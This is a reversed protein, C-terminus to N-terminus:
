NHLIFKIIGKARFYGPAAKAGFLYTRPTFERNPNDKLQQYEDVIRLANLFQRKYEHLRKLHMDFMTNPNLIINERSEIEDVLQHKKAMKKQAFRDLVNKDDAFKTLESLRHLEGRWSITGLLETILGSLEPNCLALWRRPTIGNTENLIKDPYIINYDKLVYDKLIETHLKAVGNIHHSGYSALNAMVISGDLIKVKDIQEWPIEREQLEMILQDNIRVIIDYIEPLLASFLHTNWRELAEPMVTHLTYSCSEGTAKWATDWDVNYDCTLARMLEAVAVAPHTDNMHFAHWDGLNAFDEGHHGVFAKLTSQICASTFFYEQRLRLRKGEDREDSPYLVRCIDGCRNLENLAKDYEQDNFATFDLLKLPEAKWLRITNIRESGCGPIPMDYPVAKITMDSFHIEELLDERRVLWRYGHELWTEPTEVQFGDKFEQKFLGHRFLIGHGKVPLGLTAASDMFCAALRGLGGNGLAPDPDVDEIEKLDIGKEMLSSYVDDYIDLNVLCNALGRGVLFELCLYSTQKKSNYEKRSTHWIKNIQVLLSGYVADLVQMTNAEDTNLSYDAALMDELDNLFRQKDFKYDPM